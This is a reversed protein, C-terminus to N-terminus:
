RGAGVSEFLSEQVVEIREAPYYMDLGAKMGSVTTHQTVARSHLREIMEEAEARTRALWMGSDGSCIPVGHETRLTQVADQVERVSVGLACALERQTAPTGNNLEFLRALRAANSGDDPAPTIERGTPTVAIAAYENM